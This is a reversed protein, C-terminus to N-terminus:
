IQRRYIEMASELYIIIIEIERKVVDIKSQPLPLTYKWPKDQSIFVTMLYPGIYGNMM